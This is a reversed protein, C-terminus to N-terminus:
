IFLNVKESGHIVVNKRKQRKKSNLGKYASKNFKNKLVKIQDLVANRMCM